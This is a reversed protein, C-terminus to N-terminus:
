RAASSIARSDDSGLGASFSTACAAYGAPHIDGQVDVMYDHCLKDLENTTVGPQVYPAIFDLVEAGLKGSVRMAEIQEPTKISINNMARIIGALAVGRLRCPCTGSLIVQILALM